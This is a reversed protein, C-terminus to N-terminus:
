KESGFAKVWERSSTIDPLAKRYQARLAPWKSRYRLNLRVSDILMSRFLRPNRLHWKAGSGEANSILVSDHLPVEFWRADQFPLHGQPKERAADDPKTFAHKLARVGLWFALGVGHPGTEIRGSTVSPIERARFHPIESAKVFSSSETFDKGLARIRPLRDVMDSHLQGPGELVNKIAAHRMAVTYYDMTLLNKIDYALNARWLRGGRKVPSHLLAAVLRNRAHFFAQWDHSDDKDVWSVHWVAAGPLSVTPYGHERARLAYEADDWKIFVPLSLGIERLTEVPILSMWWGNYDVDYRRHLWTTQRLNSDSFDHRGPTFPGWMFPSWKIGEAFAHLKAKDYMDLMHGGVITPTRCYNAFTVARRLSEPEIEVDDDLLIIYDSEGAEVTEHMGRSFGGSGGINKQEILRLRGDLAREAEPFAPNERIKESGQDVVLVRDLVARADDDEGIERLLRTCYDGRNLTTISVTATGQVRPEAGEPALWDAQTLLLEDEGAILDFWLWGGDLYADLSLDFENTQEGSVEVGDIRQIIGRANSRFVIVRGTGSTSVRLTVSRLGTWASWYSAPFANFYSALSVTRTPPLRLSRRGELWALGSTNTLRLPHKASDEPTFGRAKALRMSEDELNPEFTWVEPDLYLPLAQPDGHEPFIVRQLVPRTSTETM